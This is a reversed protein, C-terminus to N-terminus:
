GIAPVERERIDVDATALKQLADALKEGKHLTERYEEEPDSDWVIGGGVNFFAEGRATVITRIAINLEMKGSADLWGISGTYIGRTTPETEAIIEMARVKPAGTISGGPFTARIIDMANVDGRLTGEVTAVLHHVSAFSELVVEEKVKVSGYRCVRGLDNRELDVIMALEARNKESHLLNRAYENDEQSTKGRPATGKIPRTIMRRGRVRLFLEPSCSGVSFLPTGIFASYPAPNIGDLHRFLRFPDGTFPFSFRQSINAQFIDGAAIYERVREVAAKYGEASFNSRLLGANGQPPAHTGEEGEMTSALFSHITHEDLTPIARISIRFGKKKRHDVAWTEGFCVLMAEPMHPHDTGSVPVDEIYRNLEYGLYGMVPSAFPIAPQTLSFRELFAQIHGLVDGERTSIGDATIIRVSGECACLVAAPRVGTISYRSYPHQPMGSHLLVSCPAEAAEAPLRDRCYRYDVDDVQIGLINM